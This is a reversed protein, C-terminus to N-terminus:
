RQRGWTYNVFLRNLTPRTFEDIGFYQRAKDYISQMQSDLTKRSKSMEHSMRKYTWDPHTVAMEVTEREAPTLEAHLFRYLRNQFDAEKRTNITSIAEQPNLYRGIETLAPPAGSWRMIPVTVLSVDDDPEPLFRRSDVVYKPSVLYLLQDEPEFLLQATAMGYVGMIKRGGAICLYVTEGAKKARQVAAYINKFAVELEQETATDALLREGDHFIISEFHVTPFYADLGRRLNAIASKSPEVRNDTHIVRVTDILRGQRRLLHLTMTVVQAETGLTCILTETKKVPPLTVCTEPRHM